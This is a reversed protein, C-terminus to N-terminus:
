GSEDPPNGGSEGCAELIESKTAWVVAEARSAVGLKGLLNGVHTEVTHVSIVLTQAIEQNSQGQCILGLVEQERLTLTEWLALVERRWARARQQQEQTFLTQGAAAVRIAEVLQQARTGKDLYGAAGADLMQAVYYDRDHATLVLVAIEPYCENAWLAIEAPRPGPMVLDLVLVQPHVQAVLEQAAEGDEAVGIVEIDPATALMKLVGERAVAEDDAIIVTIRETKGAM